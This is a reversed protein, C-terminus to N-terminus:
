FRLGIHLLTKLKSNQSSERDTDKEIERDRDTQRDTKRDKDIQWFIVCGSIEGETQRGVYKNM